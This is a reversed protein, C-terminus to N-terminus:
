VTSKEFSEPIPVDPLPKKISIFSIAHINGWNDEDMM